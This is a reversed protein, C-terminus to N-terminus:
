VPPLPKKDLVPPPGGKEDRTPMPTPVHVPAPAAFTELGPRAALMAATCLTETPRVYALGEDVALWAVSATDSGQVWMTGLRSDRVDTLSLSGTNRWAAGDIAVVELQVDDASGRPFPYVVRGGPGLRVAAFTGLEDSGLLLLQELFSSNEAAFHNLTTQVIVEVRAQELAAPIPAPAPLQAFALTATLAPGIM